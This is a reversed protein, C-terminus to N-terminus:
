AHRTAARLKLAPRRNKAMRAIRRARSPYGSERRYQEAGREIEALRSNMLDAHLHSNM